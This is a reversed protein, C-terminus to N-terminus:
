YKGKRNNADIINTNPIEYFPLDMEFDVALQDIVIGTQNVSIQIVQKGPKDATYKFKAIASNRSINTLWKKNLYHAGKIKSDLDFSKIESDNIKIGVQLDSGNGYTPLFRVQLEYSCPKNIYFSYEVAPKKNKFTKISMPMLTIANNSYGLGEVVQWSYDGEGIVNTYENAQIFLRKGNENDETKSRVPIHEKFAKNNIFDPLDFAPLDRPHMCMINKWKGNSIDINYIGTLRKIENYSHKSMKAFEEQKEVSEAELAMQAYLFKQNMLGACKVPYEVLQFWADKRNEPISNKLMDCKQMIVSYMKLRREQENGNVLSNFESPRVSATLPKVMSWGMAEPKRIFALRYYENMIDAIDKAIDTGFERAAWMEMHQYISNKNISNIDWALDLFFEMNYEAPKIDGVNAIWIKRAGNEYAKTMETWILAPQTTSLWLYDHPPGWYSLHYYVGSGGSRKQEEINSLRTIYGNSDDCWMITVDDPIKLGNNYLDLVEKYLIITQEISDISKNKRKSLLQRQDDIIKELMEVKEQINDGGQMQGDGIGRMGLTVINEADNVQTIREDWYQYVNESNSFYSYEGYKKNDWEGINNRLMPENHSTGVVIKYKQAMEKNGAITYFSKTGFHMAPWITNAKLRLLLQFVKEYTKPGIEGKETEFTKSAWPKLGWIEDNIFIGRYQVSPKETIGEKKLKLKLNRKSTPKVDAWWKWPSIGLLESVKFIGYVTGRIDSGAIILSKNYINIHFKEWAGKLSKIQKQEISKILSNNYEGIYIGKEKNFTNSILIQPRNGTITKIDDALDSIAWIILSDTHEDIYINISKEKDSIFFDPEKSCGTIVLIAVLLITIFNLHVGRFDEKIKFLKM